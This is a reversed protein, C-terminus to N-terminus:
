SQIVGTNDLPYRLCFGIITSGAVSAPMFNFILNGNTQITIVPTAAGDAVATIPIQISHNPRYAAPLTAFTINNYNGAAAPFQVHGIIEVDGDACKRVQPPTQGSITGIFSNQLPRLDHWTEQIAPTVSTAVVSPDTATIQPCRRIAFGNNDWVAMTTTGGGDAVFDIEANASSSGDKSPSNFGILVRDRHNALNIGPGQVAVGAWQAPGPTTEFGFLVPQSTIAADNIPFSVTAPNGGSIVVQPGTQPGVQIGKVFPNAFTDSGAVNQIAIFLHQFAGGTADYILYGSPSIIFEILGANNYGVISGPFAPPNIVIRQGTAGFPITLSTVPLFFNLGGSIVSLNSQTGSAVCAFLDAEGTVAFYSNPTITVIGNADTAQISNTDGFFVNAPGNNIVLTEGDGEAVVQTAVNGPGLGITDTV